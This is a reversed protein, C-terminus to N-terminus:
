SEMGNFVAWHESGTPLLLCGQFGLTPEAKTNKMNMLMIDWTGQKLNGKLASLLRQRMQIIAVMEHKTQHAISVRLCQM